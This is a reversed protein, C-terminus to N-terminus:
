SRDTKEPMAGDVRATAHHTVPGLDRSPDLEFGLQTALAFLREAEVEDGRARAVMALNFVPLANAPDAVRSQRCAREAAALRGAALHAAGIVGHAMSVADNSYPGPALWAVHRLWPHATLAALFRDASRVASNFDGTDFARRAQFLDSWLWAAIRHPLALVIALIVAQSPTMVEEFLALVVLAAGAGISALHVLRRKRTRNM